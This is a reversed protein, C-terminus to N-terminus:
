FLYEAMLNLFIGSIETRVNSNFFNQYAGTSWAPTNSSDTYRYSEMRYNLGVLTTLSRSYRYSGLFGIAYNLDSSNEFKGGNPFSLGTTPLYLHVNAQLGLKPTLSYWYEAGVHPGAVGGKGYQRTVNDPNTFNINASESTTWLAPFEGM